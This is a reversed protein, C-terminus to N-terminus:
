GISLELNVTAIAWDTRGSFKVLEGYSRMSFVAALEFNGLTHYLRCDKCRKVGGWFCGDDKRLFRSKAADLKM